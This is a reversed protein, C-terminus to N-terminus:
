LHQHAYAGLAMERVQALLKRFTPADSLDARLVLTNVFFGILGEIEARTRNAIPSGIRIDTQGTYRYLLTQYAALFTMFLTVGAARSLNQLAAALEPPLTFPETAGHDTQIAPRPRDTPLNLLPTRGDLQEKWYDIERQLTEGQLWSQQWHAYDAYQLPLKPLAPQQGASFAQYAAALERVFVGMSWGDSIIHHMIVIAIHEDDALQLLHMRLLPGEALNFPRQAEEKILREAEAEREAEPLHRLDTVPLPLNLEPAIRQRPEGGISIFATRLSEHRHIIEDVSQRLAAVDLPGHLRVATPINYFLNGPELQDLFWLRQQAFSLPLNGDRPLPTEPFPPLADSQATNEILQALGAVTPQDFLQRLPLDIQFARRIRSIIRTALLSHGGLEHFDDHIGVRPVRLVDAWIGALIEEAPTRPAVYNHSAAVTQGEPDPLARRNIKGNPLLPMEDLLVFAAPVMYIPLREKLYAHLEAADPTADPAPILYAFLQKEDQEDERAIVVATEVDERGALLTEIEGLEIRFGRIKVQHDIRGLYEINGDPRFRCLDGTCYVTIPYNPLQTISYNPLQIFKEATLAPRNLYGRALHVGGIHLEGPVGVPVPRQDKDLIYLQTNALPRGIPPSGEEGPSCLYLSACVTAETPGYANYFKHNAAWKQVLEPPCAEGASLVHTLAPLNDPSLLTL